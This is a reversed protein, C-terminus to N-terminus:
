LDFGNISEIPSFEWEPYDAEKETMFAYLSAYPYSMDQTLITLQTWANTTRQINAANTANESQLKLESVNGTLTSRNKVWKFFVFYAILSVKDDNILGNWKVNYGNVTYAKGEVIDLIRQDSVGAEYALVLTGLEYGFVKLIIEKEYRAIYATLDNYDSDPINIDKVFYTKDILSM